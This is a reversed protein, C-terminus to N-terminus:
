VFSLLHFLYKNIIYFISPLLNKMLFIILLEGIVYTFLSCTIVLATIKYQKYKIYNKICLNTDSNTHKAMFNYFYCQLTQM